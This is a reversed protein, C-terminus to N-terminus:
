HLPRCTDWGAETMKALVAAHQADLAQQAVLFKSTTEQLLIEMFQDVNGGKQAVLLLCTSLLSTGINASVSLTVTHGDKEICETIWRQIIPAMRDLLHKVRDIEAQNIM